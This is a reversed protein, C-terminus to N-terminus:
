SETGEPASFDVNQFCEFPIDPVGPTGEAVERIYHRDTWDSVNIGIKEMLTINTKTVPADCLPLQTENTGPFSVPDTSGYPCNSYGQIPSPNYEYLLKYFREACYYYCAGFSYLGPTPSIGYKGLERLGAVVSAYGCLCARECLDEPEYSESTSQELLGGAVSYNSINLLSYIPDQQELPMIENTVCDTAVFMTIGEANGDRDLFPSNNCIFKIEQEGKCYHYSTVPIGGAFSVQQQSVFFGCSRIYYPMFTWYGCSDQTRNPRSATLTQATTSTESYTYSAGFNFALEIQSESKGSIGGELTYGNTIAVSKLTALTCTAGSQCRSNPIPVEKSFWWLLYQECYALCNSKYIENNTCITPSDLSTPCKTNVSALDNLPVLESNVGNPSIMAHTRETDFRLDPLATSTVGSMIGNVTQDISRNSSALHDKCSKILSIAGERMMNDKREDSSNSRVSQLVLSLCLPDRLDSEPRYSMRALCNLVNEVTRTLSAKTWTSPRNGLSSESVSPFPPQGMMKIELCVTFAAQIIDNNCVFQFLHWYKKSNVVDLDAVEPDFVDQQSLIILSSQICTKRTELFTGEKAAQLLLPRYLCLLVRRIYTDLMVRGFLLGPKQCEDRSAYNCRLVKPLDRLCQEIQRGLALIENQGTNTTINTVLRVARLRLPLSEALTVQFLSDTWVDLPRSSSRQTMDEFLESDDINAPSSCTFDNEGITAPMGSTLSAQLDLEVITMWLRRRQEADFISISQAETPERHLGMTMASRVLMGTANWLDDNRTSRTQHVVLLLTQTRLTSIQIRNKWDLGNLWDQVLGCSSTASLLAESVRNDLGESEDLSTAVGLVAILQPLFRNVLASTSDRNEIFTEYDRMFTPAHLIRFNTEFNKFYIEVLRDSVKRSPLLTALRSLASRTGAFSSTEATARRRTTAKHLTHFEKMMSRLSLDTSCKQIFRQAEEFEQLLAVKHSPGHYQSRLEKICFFGGQSPSYRTVGLVHPGDDEDPADLTPRRRRLDSLGRELQAVRFQLDEVVGFKDSAPVASLPHLKYHEISHTRTNSGEIVSTRATKRAREGGESESGDAQQARNQSLSGEYKNYTCQAAFGAKRCQGCPLSRDCKLKKRRCEICSLVPRARKQPVQIMGDRGQHPSPSSSVM